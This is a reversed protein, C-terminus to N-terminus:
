YKTNFRIENLMDQFSKEKDKLTKMFGICYIAIMVILFLGVALLSYWNAEALSPILGVAKFCITAPLCIYLSISQFPFFGTINGILVFVILIVTYPLIMILGHSLPVKNISNTKDPTIAANRQTFEKSAVIYGRTYFLVGLPLAVVVGLFFRLIKDMDGVLFIICFLMIVMSFGFLWLSNLLSGVFLNVKRSKKAMLLFKM